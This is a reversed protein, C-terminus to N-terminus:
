RLIQGKMNFEKVANQLIADVFKKRIKLYKFILDEEHRQLLVLEAVKQQTTIEPLDIEVTELHKKGVGLISTGQVHLAYHRQASQSGMAWALFEPLVLSRDPRILVLPAVVVVDCEHKPMVAVSIGAGRGRFILDGEQAIYREYGVDPTVFTMTDFSISGSTDLDGLQMLRFQGSISDEPRQRLTLGTLITAIEGLKAM